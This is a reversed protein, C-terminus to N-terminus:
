IPSRPLSLVPNEMTTFLFIPTKISDDREITEPEAISELFSADFQNKHAIITQTDRQIKRNSKELISDFDIKTIGEKEEKNGYIKNQIMNVYRNRNGISYEENGSNKKYFTYTGFIVGLAIVFLLFVFVIQFRQDLSARKKQYSNYMLTFCVNCKFVVKCVSEAYQEKENFYADLSLKFVDRERILELENRREAAIQKKIKGDNKERM